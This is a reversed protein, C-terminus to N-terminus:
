AGAGRQWSISSKQVRQWSIIGLPEIERPIVECFSRIQLRERWTKSGM